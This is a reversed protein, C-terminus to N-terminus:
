TVDSLMSQSQSLKRCLGWGTLFEWPAERGTFNSHVSGTTFPSGERSYMYGPNLLDHRILTKTEVYPTTAEPVKLAVQM